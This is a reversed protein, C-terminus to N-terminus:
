IVNVKQDLFLCEQLFYKIVNHHLHFSKESTSFNKEQSSKQKIKQYLITSAMPM